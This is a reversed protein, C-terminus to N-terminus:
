VMGEPPMGPPQMQQPMQQQMNPDIPPAAAPVVHRVTQGIQDHLSRDRNVEANLAAQDVQARYQATIKAKELEYHMADRDRERDDKLRLEEKKLEMEARRIQMEMKMKEIEAMSKQAEAQAIIMNPDPKQQSQSQMIQQMAEPTIEKVYSSVDKIGNARMIQELTHRWQEIGVVPNTFGYKEMAAEQKALVQTLVAAKRAEAQKGLAVNVTVDMATNWTRPDVEVFERERLRITMPKDQHRCLIRFVLAILRKLSRAFNRAVLMLRQESATITNNVASATTSQLVDPDLGQSAKSVGTRSARVDDIYQLFPLGYQGQFTTTLEQVAGQQKVRIVKSGENSLVDSMEVQNEVVVLSPNISQALSDLTDRMVHTKIVQLDMIKDAESHGIAVHPIPHPCWDVIGHEPVIEDHLIHCGTGVTCVRHLEAIGDGDSDHLIYHEVYLVHRMTEDVETTASMWAAPNRSLEAMDNAGLNGFGGDSGAFEEVEDRDYGMGVLESVTKLSRHAIYAAKEFSRSRRSIIIAEPPVTEVVCRGQSSTRRVRASITMEMPPGGNHGMQPPMSPMPGAGPPMLGMPGPPMAMPKAIAEAPIHPLVDPHLEDEYATGTVEVSGEIVELEDDDLVLKFADPTLGSYWEETIIPTTDWRALTFGTKALLGDHMASAIFADKDNQVTLVYNVADTAQEAGPVDSANRPDISTVTDNGCVVDVLSPKMSDIGEAVDRSVYSSRGDEEDGLPKGDYYEQALNREPQVTLDIYDVADQYAAQVASQLDRDEDDRSEKKSSKQKEHLLYELDSEAMVARRRLDGIEDRPEAKRVPAKRATKKAPVDAVPLPTKKSVKPTRAM